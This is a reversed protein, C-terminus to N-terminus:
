PPWGASGPTFWGLALSAASFAHGDGIFKEAVLSDNEIGYTTAGKDYSNGPGFDSFVVFDARACTATACLVALAGLAPAAPKM